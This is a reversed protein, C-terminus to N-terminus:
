VHARGIEAVIDPVTTPGPNGFTVRVATDGSLADTLYAFLASKVTGASM